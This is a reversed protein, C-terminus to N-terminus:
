YSSHQLIENHKIEVTEQSNIYRIHKRDIVAIKGAHPIIESYEFYITDNHIKYTGPYVDDSFIGSSIFEFTKDDYIKLSIWGMPAERDALLLTNKDSKRNCNLFSFVIFSLLIIRFIKM